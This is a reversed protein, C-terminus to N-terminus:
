RGSYGILTPTTCRRAFASSCFSQRNRWALLSQRGIWCVANQSAAGCQSSNRSEKSPLFDDTRIPLCGINEETEKVFWHHFKPNQMRRLDKGEHWKFDFEDIMDDPYIGRYTVAWAQKRLVGLAHVESELALVFQINPM